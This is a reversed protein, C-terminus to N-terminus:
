LMKRMEVFVIVEQRGASKEEKEGGELGEEMLVGEGAEKGPVKCGLLHKVNGFTQDIRSHKWGWACVKKGLVVRGEKGSDKRELRRM